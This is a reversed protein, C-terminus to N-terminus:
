IFVEQTVQEGAYTASSQKSMCDYYLTVIPASQHDIMPPISAQSSTKSPQEGPYLHMASLGHVMQM